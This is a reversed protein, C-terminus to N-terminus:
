RESSINILRHGFLLRGAGTDRSGIGWSLLMLQSLRQSRAREAKKRDVFDALSQIDGGPACYLLDHKHDHELVGWLDVGYNSVTPYVRTYNTKIGLIDLIELRGAQIYAGMLILTFLFIKRM